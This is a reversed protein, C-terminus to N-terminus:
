ISVHRFMWATELGTGNVGSMIKASSMRFHKQQQQKKKNKNTNNNSNNTNNNGTSNNDLFFFLTLCKM